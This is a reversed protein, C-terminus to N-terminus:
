TCVKEWNSMEVKRSLGDSVTALGRARPLQAFVHYIRLENSLQSATVWSLISKLSIHRENTYKSPSSSQADVLLMTLWSCEPLNNPSLLSTTNSREQYSSVLCGMRSLPRVSLMNADSLYKFGYDCILPRQWYHLNQLVSQFVFSTPFPASIRWIECRYPSTCTIYFPRKKPNLEWKKAKSM